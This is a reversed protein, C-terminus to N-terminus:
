PQSTAVPPELFLKRNQGVAPKQFFEESYAAAYHRLPRYEAEELDVCHQLVEQWAQEKLPLSWGAQSGQLDQWPTTDSIIAPTGALLAEAIAYGFNEGLTSLVFFDAAGVRSLVESHPVEGCFNLRISAPLNAALKRCKEVYATESLPGIVDLTVDGQLKGLIPILWHLNKKESVRSCFVLRMQGAAKAEARPDAASAQKPPLYPMDAIPIQAGLANQIDIKEQPTSALFTVGKYLGFFRVALAFFCRKKFRKVTLAGPSFEGHPALFLPKQPIKRLRHFWLYRVTLPSFFGCLYVLDPKADLVVQRIKNAPPTGPALYFVSAQGEPNWDNLQVNPYPESMGLDNGRTFVWFRAEHGLWEVLNAVSRLMGGARFGPLYYGSLVLIHRPM